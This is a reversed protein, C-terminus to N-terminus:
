HPCTYLYHMTDAISIPGTKSFSVQVPLWAKSFLWVGPALNIVSSEMNLSCTNIKKSFSKQVADLKDKKRETRKGLSREMFQFIRKRM